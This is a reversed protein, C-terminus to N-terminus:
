GSIGGPALMWPLMNHHQGIHIHQDMCVALVCGKIRGAAFPEFGHHRAARARNRCTM